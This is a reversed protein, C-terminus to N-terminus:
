PTIFFIWAASGLLRLRSPLAGMAELAMLHQDVPRARIAFGGPLSVRTRGFRALSPEPVVISTQIRRVFDCPAEPKALASANLFLPGEPRGQTELGLHRLLALMSAIAV